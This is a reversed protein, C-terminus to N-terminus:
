ILKNIKWFGSSQFGLFGSFTGCHTSGLPHGKGGRLFSLIQPDYSSLSLPSSPKHVNSISSKSSQNSTCKKTM